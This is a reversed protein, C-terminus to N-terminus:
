ELEKKISEIEASLKIIEKTKRSIDELKEKQIKINRQSIDVEYLGKYKNYLYQIDQEDLTLVKNDFRQLDRLWLGPSMFLNEFTLTFVKIHDEKNEKDVAEIFEKVKKM